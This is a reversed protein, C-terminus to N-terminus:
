RLKYKYKYIVFKLFDKTFLVYKKTSGGPNSGPIESGSDSTNGNCWLEINAPRGRNSCLGGTKSVPMSGNFVM